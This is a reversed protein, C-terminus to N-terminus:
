SVRHGGLLDPVDVVRDENYDEKGSRLIYIRGVSGGGDKAKQKAKRASAVCPM